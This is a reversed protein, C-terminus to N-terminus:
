HRRSYWPLRGRTHPQSLSIFAHVVRLKAHKQHYAVWDAALARDTFRSFGPPDPLAEVEIHDPSVRAQTCFGTLLVDLTDPAIHAVHAHKAMIDSGSVECRVTKRAGIREARVALIQASVECRAALAAKMKPSPPTLCSHYSFSALSGDSREIAFCQSGFRDPVVVIGAVGGESKEFYNPHRRVLSLILEADAGVLQQGPSYRQLLESVYDAADTKTKFEMTGITTPIAVGVKKKSQSAGRGTDKDKIAAPRCAFCEYRLEKLRGSLAFAHSDIRDMQKRCSFCFFRLARVFFTSAPAPNLYNEISIPKKEGKGDIFVISRDVFASVVGERFKGHSWPFRALLALLFAFDEDSVPHMVGMYMQTMTTLRARLADRDPFEEGGITIM